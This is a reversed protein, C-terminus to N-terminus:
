KAITLSLIKLEVQRKSNVFIERFSITDLLFFLRERGSFMIEDAHDNKFLFIQFQLLVKM